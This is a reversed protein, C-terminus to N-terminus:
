GVSTPPLWPLPGITRASFCNEVSNVERSQVKHVKMKHSIHDQSMRSGQTLELNFGTCAWWNEASVKAGQPSGEGTRAETGSLQFEKSRGLTM